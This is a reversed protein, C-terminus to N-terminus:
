RWVHASASDYFYVELARGKAEKRREQIETARNSLRRGATSTLSGHVGVYVVEIDNNSAELPELIHDDNPSFSVGHIFLAGSLAAFRRHATRLYASRDIRDLKEECTGETVVLPYRGASLRQRMEEVLRGQANYSLKHVRRDEVYMHLAGHLYHVAQATSPKSKWILRSRDHFTPWEFGDSQPVPYGVSARNVVWYLLLDYNLTFLQDFNSLFARAYQVEQDSLEYAHEPHRDALVDALGNQVVSADARLTEILPEPGGYLEAATAASKLKDIVVEFNSSGLTQFLDDKAVSLNELKAEKALSEYGFIEADFDMSFGNGLLVTAEVDRDEVDGIAEPFSILENPM